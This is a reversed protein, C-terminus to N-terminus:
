RCPCTPLLRVCRPDGVIEVEKLVLRAEDALRMALKSVTLKETVKVKKPGPKTRGRARQPTATTITTGGLQAAVQAADAADDEDDWGWEEGAEDAPGAGGRLRLPEAAEEEETPEDDGFGWGDDVVPSSEDTSPDLHGGNRKAPSPPLRSQAPSPPVSRRARESKSPSPQGFKDFGWGGGDDGEGDEVEEVAAPIINQATASGNLGKLPPPRPKIADAPPDLTPMPSPTPATSFDAATEEDEPVLDDDLGWADEEIEASEDVPAPIAAVSPTPAVPPPRSAPQRTVSATSPPRSPPQQTISVTSSPRSPPQHPLSVISPPRSPPQRTISASSAPRSPSQRTVSATAPPPRPATPKATPRPPPPPSPRSPPLVPAPASTEGGLDWDVDEDPADDFNEMMSTDDGGELPLYEDRSRPKSAPAPPPPPQLPAMASAGGTPSSPPSPSPTFLEKPLSSGAGEVRNVASISGSMSRRGAGLSLPRRSPTSSTSPQSLPTESRHPSSPSRSHSRPDSSSSTPVVPDHFDFLSRFGGGTSTTPPVPSSASSYFSDERTSPSGATKAPTSIPVQAPAPQPEPEPEPEPEPLSVETEWDVPVGEWDCKVMEGRLRDLRKAVLSDGWRQGVTELWRAISVDASSLTGTHAAPHSVWTSSSFWSSFDKAQPLLAGWRQLSASFEPGAPSSPLSPDLALAVVQRELNPRLYVAFRALLSNDSSSPNRPAFLSSALTSLLSKLDHFVDSGTSTATPDPSVDEVLITQVGAEATQTRIRKAKSSSGAPPHTLLPVLVSGLTVEAIRALEKEVDKTALGDLALVVDYWDVQGFRAKISVGTSPAQLPTLGLRLVDLLRQHVEEGLESARLKARKALDTESIWGDALDVMKSRLGKLVAVAGVLPRADDEFPSKSSSPITLLSTLQSLLSYVPSLSSLAALLASSRSHSALLQAHSTLTRSLQVRIGDQVCVLTSKLLPVTSLLGPMRVQPDQFDHELM